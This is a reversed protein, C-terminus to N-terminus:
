RFTRILSTRGYFVARCEPGARGCRQESCVACESESVCIADSKTYIRM